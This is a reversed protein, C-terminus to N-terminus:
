PVPDSYFTITFTIASAQTNSLIVDSQILPSIWKDFNVSIFVKFTGIIYALLTLTGLRLLISGTPLHIWTQIFFCIIIITYRSIVSIELKM